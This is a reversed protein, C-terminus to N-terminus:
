ETVEHRRTVDTELERGRKERYMYVYIYINTYTFIAPVGVMYVVPTFKDM